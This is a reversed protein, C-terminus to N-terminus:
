RNGFYTPSTRLLKSQVSEHSSTRRLKSSTRLCAQDTCAVVVIELNPPAHLYLWISAAAGDAPLFIKAKVVVRIVDDAPPEDSCEVLM